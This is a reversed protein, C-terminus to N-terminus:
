EKSFTYNVVYGGAPDPAPPESPNMIASILGDQTQVILYYPQNEMKTFIFKGGELPGSNSAPAAFVTAYKVPTNDSKTVSGSVTYDDTAKQAMLQNVQHKLENLRHADDKRMQPVIGLFSTLVTGIATIIATWIAVKASSASAKTM